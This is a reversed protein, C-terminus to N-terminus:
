LTNVEKEKKEKLCKQKKDQAPIFSETSDLNAESEQTGQWLKRM